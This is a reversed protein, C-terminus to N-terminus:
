RRGRLLHLKTNHLLIKGGYALNFRLNCVEEGEEDGGYSDADDQDTFANQVAQRFKEGTSPDYSTSEELYPDIVDQWITADFENAEALGAALFAVYSLVEEDAKYEDTSGEGPLAQHLIDLVNHPPELLSMIIIISICPYFWRFCCVSLHRKILISVWCSYFFAQLLRDHRHPQPQTTLSTYTQKGNPHNRFSLRTRKKLAVSYERLATCMAQEDMGWGARFQLLKDLLNTLELVPVKGISETCCIIVTCAYRIMRRSM